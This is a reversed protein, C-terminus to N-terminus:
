KTVPAAPTGTAGTSPKQLILMVAGLVTAGVTAWTDTHLLGANIIAGLVGVLSSVIALVHDGGLWHDSTKSSKVILTGITFVALMSGWPIGIVKFLGWITTATGVPDQSPDPITVNLGGSASGSGSAVVDAAYAAHVGHLYTVLFYGAVMSLISLLFSTAIKRPTMM